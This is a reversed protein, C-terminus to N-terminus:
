LGALHLEEQRDATRLGGDRPIGFDIPTLELALDSIEILRQDAGARNGLSAKSFRYMSM